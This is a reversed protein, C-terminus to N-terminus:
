RGIKENKEETDETRSTFGNVSSQIETITTELELNEIQNKKKVDTEKGLSQIKKEIKKLTMMIAM